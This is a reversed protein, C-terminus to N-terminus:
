EKFISNYYISLSEAATDYGETNKLKTMAAEFDRLTGLTDDAMSKAGANFAAQLWAEMMDSYHSLPERKSNRILMLDDYFRESRLCYNEVEHFFKDFEKELNM